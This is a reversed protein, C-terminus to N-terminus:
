ATAGRLQHDSQLQREFPTQRQWCAEFAAKTLVRGGFFVDEFTIMTPEFLDKISRRPAVERLYQRNTKGKTLRIFQRKDLQLLQHSYLYIIAQRYDGAEYFRRAESLLDGSTTRIKTPLAEIRTIDYEEPEIEAEAAQRHESELFSRILFYIILICLAPIAIYIFFFGIAEVLGAGFSALWGGSRSPGPTAVPQAVPPRVDLRRLDDAESDYWPYSSWEGLAERASEVAAEDDDFGDQGRVVTSTSVLLALSFSAIATGWVALRVLRTLNHVFVNM